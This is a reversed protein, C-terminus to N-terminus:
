NSWPKQSVNKVYGEFFLNMIINEDLFEGTLELLVLEEKKIKLEEKSESYYKCYGNKLYKFYVTNSTESKGIEIKEDFDYRYINMGPTRITYTGWNNFFGIKKISSIKDNKIDFMFIKESNKYINVYSNSSRRNKFHGILELDKFKFNMKEEIKDIMENNKVLM